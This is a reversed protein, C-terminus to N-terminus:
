DQGGVGAQEELEGGLWTREGPLQVGVGHELEQVRGGDSL